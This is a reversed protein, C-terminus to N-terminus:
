FLRQNRERNQSQRRYRVVMPEFGHWANFRVGCLRPAVSETMRMRRTAKNPRDASKTAPASPRASRADTACDGAGCACGAGSAVGGAAAGAGAWVDGLAGAVDGAGAGLAAGD